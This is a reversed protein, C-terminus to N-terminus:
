WTEWHLITEVPERAGPQFEAGKTHAVPILAVQMVDEYPIELLDAAEEEYFLHFMTWCTGLGRDRAALMFSWAAPMISGYLAHQFATPLGDARPSICPIVLVPVNHLNEVLYDISSTIKIQEASADPIGYGTAVANPTDLFTEYGKRYLRALATRRDSETVVVFGWTQMNGGNPGQQAINICEEVDKRDVARDFDLRKRVARTTTLVEDVTLNTAM